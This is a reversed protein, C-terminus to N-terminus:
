AQGSSLGAGARPADGGRRVPHRVADLSLTLMAVDDTLRGAAHRLLAARTASVLCDPDLVGDTTATRAAARLAFPLGFFEGSDDRTEEAGDTYLFLAQGPSLRGRGVYPEAAPDLVGLPPMPEVISLLSVWPVADRTNDILYPCPHGCNLVETTGDAALELLLLTAFEESLPTDPEGLAASPHEAVSRELLHRALARDLRRLVGGLEPEDHAAERFCGLLAAVTGIASLGHGRVDGVIVRVGYPTTLVEYLDGGVQAGRTASLYDGAVSLTGVRRPLPRLLVRQTAVAVERVRELERTLRLRRGTILYSAGIVSLIALVHGLELEFDGARGRGSLPFLAFLACIGGVVVCRRRGSGACAIAPAAALLQVVHIRGPVVFALAVVAGTWLGPSVLVLARCLPSAENQGCPVTRIRNM